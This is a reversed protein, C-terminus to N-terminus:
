GLIKITNHFVFYNLVNRCFTNSILQAVACVYQHTSILEYRWSIANHFLILFFITISRLTCYLPIAAYHTSARQTSRVANLGGSYQTCFPPKLRMSSYMYMNIIVFYSSSFRSYSCCLDVIAITVIALHRRHLRSKPQWREIEKCMSSLLWMIIVALLIGGALTMQNWLSVPFTSGWFIRCSATLHCPLPM